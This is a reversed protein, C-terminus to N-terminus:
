CSREKTLQLLDSDCMSFEAYYTQLIFIDLEIEKSDAVAYHRLFM